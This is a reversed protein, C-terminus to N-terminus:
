AAKKIPRKYINHKTPQGVLPKSALYSQHVQTWLGSLRIVRLDLIIQGDEVNWSMGSQKFRQTFVTKCGAETVGSGIPLGHRKYEVYNMFRKHNNLYGYAKQYAKQDKKSLVRESRHKAASHLVRFVANPKHKLWKCMKRAWAHGERTDGFLADALKGVYESAHYFDVIWTWDLHKHPHRPDPMNQLVNKHYETPHFGADTVYALRPLPGEWAGLVSEILRTLRDSLRGQGPQPMQGLYVTGLRGGCRDYVSVTAVAGEKYCKEKRIPLFIGDRGVSLVPKHKGRSADGEQLWSLVQTVQAEHLHPTMGESLSATVKRLTGVSWDVGHERELISLLESQTCRTALEGVREALAPTANRSEVGLNIELPFISVEGRELPEYLFRDLTIIGFLTSLHRNASKPKRRYEEGQFDIRRPLADPAVPEIRNYAYAVIEWGIKRLTKSLAIEFAYTSEPTTPNILFRVVLENIEKWLPTVASLLDALEAPFPTSPLAISVTSESM